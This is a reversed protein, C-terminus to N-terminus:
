IFSYMAIYIRYYFPKSTYSSCIYVCVPFLFGSCLCVIICMCFPFLSYQPSTVKALSQLTTGAAVSVFLQDRRVAPSIERLVPAVAHPKTAIWVVNSRRVQWLVHNSLSSFPTNCHKLLHHMCKISFISSFLPCLALVTLCVAVLVKFLIIIFGFSRAQKYM